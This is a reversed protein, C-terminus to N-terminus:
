HIILFSERNNNISIIKILNDSLYNEIEYSDNFDKISNNTEDYHKFISHNLESYYFLKNIINNYQKLTSSLQSTNFLSLLSNPDSFTNYDKINTLSDFTGFDVFVKHEKFGSIYPINFLEANLLRKFINKLAAIPLEPNTIKNLELPKTIPIDHNYNNLLITTNIDPTYFILHNRFEIINYLMQIVSNSWCRNSPYSTKILNNIGPINNISKLNSYSNNVMLYIEDETLQLQNLNDYSIDYKNLYNKININNLDYDTYLFKNNLEFNEESTNSLLDSTNLLLDDQELNDSILEEQKPSSILLNSTKSILDEEEPTKSILDEEEELTKSILDKQEKLKEEQLQEEKPTNSILDESTNSILDLNTSTNSKHPLKPYNSPTINTYLTNNQIKDFNPNNSQLNQFQKYINNPTIKM